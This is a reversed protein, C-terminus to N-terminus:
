WVNPPLHPPRPERLLRIRKDRVAFDCPGSMEVSIDLRGIVIPLHRPCSLGIGPSLAFSVTLVKGRPSHRVNEAFRRHSREYAKKM